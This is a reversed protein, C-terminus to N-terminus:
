LMKDDCGFEVLGFLRLMKPIGAFVALFFNVSELVFRSFCKRSEQLFSAFFKRYELM